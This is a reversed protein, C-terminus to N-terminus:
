KSISIELRRKEEMEMKVKVEEDKGGRVFAEACRRDEEFIPKEDLYYLNPLNVTMHRRYNSILRICPNGALYLCTVQQMRTFFPVIDNHTDIQNDRLDLNTLAPLEIVQECDNIDVIFNHSIDLTKLNVCHDIGEIKRIKNHSLNLTVLNVLTTMNKMECILNQHLYLMRLQTLKDLGM